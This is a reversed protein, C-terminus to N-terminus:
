TVPLYLKGEDTNIATGDGYWKVNIKAAPFDRKILDPVWWRGKGRGPPARRGKRGSRAALCGLTSDRFGHCEVEEPMPSDVLSDVVLQM